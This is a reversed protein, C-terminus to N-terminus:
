ECTLFDWINTVRQPGSIKHQIQRNLAGPVYFLPASHLEHKDCQDKAVLLWDKHEM